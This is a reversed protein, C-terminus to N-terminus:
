AFFASNVPYGGHYGSRFIDYKWTGVVELCLYQHGKDGKVRQQDPSLCLTLEDTPRGTTLLHNHGLYLVNKSTALM